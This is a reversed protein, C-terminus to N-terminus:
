YLGKIRRKLAEALIVAKPIANGTSKIILDPKKKELLITAAYQIYNEIAGQSTIRMENDAQAEKPRPVHRYKEM